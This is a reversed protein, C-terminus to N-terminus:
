ICIWQYVEDLKLERDTETDQMTSCVACVRENKDKNSQDKM